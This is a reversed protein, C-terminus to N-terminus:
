TAPRPHPPPAEGTRQEDGQELWRERAIQEERVRARVLDSGREYDEQASNHTPASAVLPESSPELRGERAGRTM